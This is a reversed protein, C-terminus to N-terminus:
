SFNCVSERTSKLDSACETRTYIRPFMIGCMASFVFLALKTINTKQREQQLAGPFLRRCWFPFLFFFFGM